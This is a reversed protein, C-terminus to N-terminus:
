LGIQHTWNSASAEEGWSAEGWRQVCELPTHPSSYSGIREWATISFVPQYNTISLVKTERM